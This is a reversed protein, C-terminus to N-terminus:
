GQKLNDTIYRHCCLMGWRLLDSVEVPGGFGLNLLSYTKVPDDPDGFTAKRYDYTMM